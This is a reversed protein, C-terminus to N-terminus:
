DKMVLIKRLDERTISRNYNDISKLIRGRTSNEKMIQAKVSQLKEFKLPNKAIHKVLRDKPKSAYFFNQISYTASSIARQLKDAEDFRDKADKYEQSNPQIWGLELLNEIMKKSNVTWYSCRTGYDKVLAVTRANLQYINEAELHWDDELDANKFSEKRVKDDLEQATYYEKSAYRDYVLYEGDDTNPNVLKPLKLSKVDVFACDSIDIFKDLKTLMSEYKKIDMYLYGDYDDGKLIKLANVLRKHWNSTSIINPIIYVIKKTATSKHYVNTRHRNIEDFKRGVYYSWTHTTPFCNRYSHVFWDGDYNAGFQDNGSVVGGFKPVTLSAVEEEAIKDLADEIEKFVKENLPTNEISERSIPLSLKGIPVDVVIYKSFSRTIRTSTTYPYNVGGMRVFYENSNYYHPALSYQHFSYEGVVKSRIPKHPTITTNNYRNDFVINSNELFFQVFNETKKSFDYVESSKVELSIEIGQETTPEQSIEYIEGVPIGGNGAGLTCIYSTKIGNHYSTIYFTDSYAHGAKSGVGFGGISDNENTKTSEFYMGFVNRVDHDNLGKAYDRVAWVWQGNVSKLSVDVAQTIKHKVHEDQANCIYERIVALAKDTYIRDRLFYSAMEMGKNSMGMISKNDKIDDSAITKTTLIGTKM